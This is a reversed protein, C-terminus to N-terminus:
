NNTPCRSFLLPDSIHQPKGPSAEFDMCGKRHVYGKLSPQTRLAGEHGGCAPHAPGDALWSGGQARPCCPRGHFAPLSWRAPHLLLLMSPFRVYMYTGAHDQPVLLSLSFVVEGVALMCLKVVSKRDIFICSQARHAPLALGSTPPCLDRSIVEQIYIGMVPGNVAIVRELARCGARRQGWVKALGVKGM